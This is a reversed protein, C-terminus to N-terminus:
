EHSYDTVFTQTAATDTANEFADCPVVLHGSESPEMPLLKTGKSWQIKFGGKGPIGIMRKGKRLILVADMKEMSELGWIAPLGKGSGEAIHAHYTTLMPSQDQFKVAIPFKADNYCVAAGAGVGHVHMPVQRPLVQTTLSFKTADKMFEEATDAGIINIRSGLDVLMSNNKKLKTRSRPKAVSWTQESSSANGSFGMQYVNTLFHEIKGTEPAREALWTEYSKSSWSQLYELYRDDAPVAEMMFSTPNNEYSMEWETTSVTTPPVTHAPSNGPVSVSGIQITEPTGLHRFRSILCLSGRCNPCNLETEQVTATM